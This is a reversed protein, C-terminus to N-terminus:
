PAVQHWKSDAPLAKSSSQCHTKDFLKDREAKREITFWMFFYRYDGELCQTSMEEEKNELIKHRWQQTIKM